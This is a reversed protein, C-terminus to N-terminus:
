RYIWGSELLVMGLPVNNDEAPSIALWKFGVYERDVTTKYSKYIEHSMWALDKSNMKVKNTNVNGFIIEQSDKLKDYFQEVVGIGLEFNLGSPIAIMIDEM